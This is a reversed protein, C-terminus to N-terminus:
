TGNKYVGIILKYVIVELHGFFVPTMEFLGKGQKSTVGAIM